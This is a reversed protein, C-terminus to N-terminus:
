EGFWQAQVMSKSVPGFNHSDESALPDPNDGVLFLDGNSEVRLVRKVVMVSPKLPHQAMVIDGESILLPDVRHMPVVDGDCLTPWMSDGQIRVDVTTTM